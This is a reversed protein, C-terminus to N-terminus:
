CLLTIDKACSSVQTMQSFILVRHKQSLLAPLLKDMLQLKGADKVFDETVYYYQQKQKKAASKGRSCVTENEEEFTDPFQFLYPHNCVKRLQMILNQLHM